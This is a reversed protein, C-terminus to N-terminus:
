FGLFEKLGPVNELDERGLGFHQSPVLKEYRDLFEYFTGEFYKPPIFFERSGGTTRDGAQVYSSYGGLIHKRFEYKELYWGHRCIGGQYPVEFIETEPNAREIAYSNDGIIRNIFDEATKMNDYRDIHDSSWIFYSVYHYRGNVKEIAYKYDKQFLDRSAWPYTEKMIDLAQEIYLDVDYGLPFKKSM